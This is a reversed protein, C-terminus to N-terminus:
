DSCRRRALGLAEVMQQATWAASPNATVNVHLVHRRELSLVFFVYMVRFTVTSVTLFDVALTGRPPQARLHGM